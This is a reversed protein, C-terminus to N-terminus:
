VGCLQLLSFIQPYDKRGQASVTANGPRISMIAHQIGAQKAAQLEAEADSCFVIESPSVDLDKAINTYSSAVKKNGSTSIDFHQEFFETLDGNVSYGFLLKQAQVSGSSYIHVKVGHSQMWHLMNVMDAYVHGKLDGKEYGAKWMQGQMAKLSSLKLDNQVMYKVMVACDNTNSIQAKQENTLDGRLAEALANYETPPMANLYEDLHELVFPFLTDKVFSIATTCGEIDL